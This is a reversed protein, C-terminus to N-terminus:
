NINYVDAITNANKLYENKVFCTLAKVYNRVHINPSMFVTPIPATFPESQRDLASILCVKLLFIGLLGFDIFQM